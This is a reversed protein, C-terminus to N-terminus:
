VMMVLKYEHNICYQGDLDLIEKPITLAKKNEYYNLERIKTQINM